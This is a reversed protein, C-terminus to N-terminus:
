CDFFWFMFYFCYQLLNVLSKLFPKKWRLFFFFALIFSWNPHLFPAEFGLGVKTWSTMPWDASSEFGWGKVALSMITNQKSVSQSSSCINPLSFSKVVPCLPVFIVHEMWMSPSPFPLGSWYEWRSFGMFLPAQCAVTRPTALTLCSKTVLGGDVCFWRFSFYRDM